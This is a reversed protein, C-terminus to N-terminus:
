GASLAALVEPWATSRPDIVAFHGGEVTVLKVAPHTAAYSQALALPVLEDDAGHVVTVPVGPAPRRVPDLDPRDAAPRGLFAAVADGDLALAEALGLDAVPALAVVGAMAPARPDAAAHLVLHGGASHGALLLRGDCRGALAGAGALMGLAAVVDDITDDPRGPTRRYEIAATTLGAAALADTLPRLHVRDYAPRWFGGHVVVVLPREAAEGRGFRVDVVADPHTGYRLVLDPGPAPLDLVSRDEGSPTM